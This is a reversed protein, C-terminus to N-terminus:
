CFGIGPVGRGGYGVVDGTEIGGGNNSGSLMYEENEMVEYRLEGGGCAFEKDVVVGGVLVYPIRQYREM